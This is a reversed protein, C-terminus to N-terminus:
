FPPDQPLKRMAEALRAVRDSSGLADLALKVIRIEEFSFSENEIPKVDDTVFEAKWKGLVKPNAAETATKACSMGKVIAKSFGVHTNKKGKHYKIQSVLSDSLKVGRARLLNGIKPVSWDPHAKLIKRVHDSKSLEPM